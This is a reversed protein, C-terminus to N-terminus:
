NAVVRLSDPSISLLTIGDPLIVNPEVYGDFKEYPIEATVKIQGKKLSNILSAPGTVELTVQAPDIVCKRYSGASIVRMTKPDVMTVTVNELRRTKIPEVVTEVRASDHATTFSMGFPVELALMLETSGDVDDIIKQETFISDIQRLLAAPGTVMTQIPNISGKGTVVTYGEATVIALRSAVPKLVSDIQDLRIELSALGSIEKIEIEEGRVLVVSETNIELINLGRKLRGAKIRLGAKQWDDRLLKKGEAEVVVSLSEPLSTMVGFKAPLDIETVPLDFRHEYKKQTIVNFWLFIALLVAILKIVINITSSSM